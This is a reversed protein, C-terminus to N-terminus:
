NRGEILFLLQISPFLAQTIYHFYSVDIITPEASFITPSKPFIVLFGLDGVIKKFYHLCINKQQFLTKSTHNDALLLIKGNRVM